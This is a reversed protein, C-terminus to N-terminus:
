SPVVLMHHVRAVLALYGRVLSRRRETRCYRVAKYCGSVPRSGGTVSGCPAGCMALIGDRFSLDRHARGADIDRKLNLAAARPRATEAADDAGGEAAELVAL